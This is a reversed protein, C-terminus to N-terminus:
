CAGLQSSARASFPDQLWRHPPTHVHRQPAARRAGAEQRQGHAAHEQQLRLQRARRQAREPAGQPQSGRWHGHSRQGRLAPQCGSPVGEDRLGGPAPAAHSHPSHRRPRGAARPRGPFHAREPTRGPSPPTQTARQAFTDSAHSSGKETMAAPITLM